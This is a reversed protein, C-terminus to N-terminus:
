RREAYYNRIEREAETWDDATCYFKGEIYVILHGRDPVIKYSM